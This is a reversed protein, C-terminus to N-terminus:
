EMRSFCVHGRFSTEIRRDKTFDFFCPVNRTVAPWVIQEQTFKNMLNLVSLHNYSFKSVRKAKLLANNHQTLQGLKELMSDICYAACPTWYLHKRKEM